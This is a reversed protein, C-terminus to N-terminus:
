QSEGLVKEFQAKATWFALVAKRFEHSASALNSQAELVNKLLAAQEAYNAQTVRLRERASERATEAVSVLARSEGLKRYKENVDVLVQQETDELARRAQEIGRSKEDLEHKKRGWDFPQWSFQLGVAVVNKPLFEIRFPSLYNLSLSIDPIYEAKKIRRDQEAQKLTLRAQEVEPRQTLARTQAAALSTEVWTPEALPSVTFETRIDRGM